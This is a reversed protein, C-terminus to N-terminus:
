FTTEYAPKFDAEAGIAAISVYRDQGVASTDVSAWYFGNNIDLQTADAELLVMGANAGVETSLTIASAESGEAIDVKTMVTATHLKHYYQGSISLVKSTGSTAANHQKLTFTFTGATGAGIMILFYIKKANDLKCRAGTLGSTANAVANGTKFNNVYPLSAKM